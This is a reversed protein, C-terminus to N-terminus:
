WPVNKWNLHYALKNFLSHLLQTLLIIIVIEEFSFIDYFLEVFFLSFIMFLVGDFIFPEGESVSFRRKIFSGFSDGVMAGLSSLTGAFFYELRGLFFGFFYSAIVGIAIGAFFGRITKNKGLLPKGNFSLGFDM